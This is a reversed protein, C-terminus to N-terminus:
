AANLLMIAALRKMGSTYLQSMRSETLGAYEGVARNTAFERFAGEFLDNRGAILAQELQPLQALVKYLEAREINRAAELFTDDPAVPDITNGANSGDSDSDERLQSLSTPRLNLIGDSDILHTVAPFRVRPNPHAAWEHLEAQQEARTKEPNTISKLRLLYTRSVGPVNNREADMMARQMRYGVFSTLSSKTHDFRTVSGPISIMCIQILEDSELRGIHKHAMHQALGVYSECLRELAEPEGARSRDLLIKRIGDSIELPQQTAELSHLSAPEEAYFVENGETSDPADLLEDQPISAPSQEVYMINSM